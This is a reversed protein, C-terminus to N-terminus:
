MIVWGASCAPCPSTSAQARAPDAVCQEPVSVAACNVIAEPFADLVASTTAGEDTLDLSVRTSVGELSGTHKGTIGVVRHGRRAAARAFASGVLGSAGTVLITM